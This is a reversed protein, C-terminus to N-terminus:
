DLSTRIKVKQGINYHRNTTDNYEVGNYEYRIKYHSVYPENVQYAEHDCREEMTYGRVVQRDRRSGENAGIIVGLATMTDRSSGSGIQNGIVGGIIAGTLVDGQSGKERVYIPVKVDYCHTKYKTVYNNEYVPNVSTIFAYNGEAVLASPFMTFVIVAIKNKM